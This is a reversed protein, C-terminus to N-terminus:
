PWKFVAHGVFVTKLLVKVAETLVYRGPSHRKPDGCSELNRYASAVAEVLLKVAELRIKMVQVLGRMYELLVRVAKM